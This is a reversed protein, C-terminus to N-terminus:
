TRRRLHLVVAIGYIGALGVFGYVVRSLVSMTGFIFGVLDFGALGVLGWNISGIIMLILVTRDLVTLNETVAIPTFTHGPSTKTDM